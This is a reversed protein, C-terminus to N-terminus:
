ATRWIRVTSGNSRVSFKHNHLGHRLAWVRAAASIASAAKDDKPIAFSDGVEMSAFPYRATGAKRPPMPVNKELTFM